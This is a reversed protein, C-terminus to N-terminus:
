YSGQDGSGEKVILKGEMGKEEHHDVPCTLAYNGAKLELKLQISQGPGIEDSFEEIGEGEVELAHTTGGSNVVEFVYIGPKNLTIEAPKLSYETEEIRITKLKSDKAGSEPAANGVSGAGGACGVVLSLLMVAAAVLWMVITQSRMSSRRGAVL